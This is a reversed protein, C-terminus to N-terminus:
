EAHVTRRLRSIDFGQASIREVLMQYTAEDLTKERSLIWLYKRNPSGVVAYEYNQGLELIWYDGKFPWFFRVKLEANTEHNVVWAVGTARSWPGDVSGKNCQNVVRVTGNENLSYEATTAFCDRQFRQPFAAIEYWKGM